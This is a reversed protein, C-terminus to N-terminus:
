QKVFLKRIRQGEMTKVELLYIGAALHKVDATAFSQGNLFQTSITQGQYNLLNVEMMQNTNIGIFQIMLASGVPNPFLMITEQNNEELQGVLTFVSSSSQCGNLNSIVVQYNGNSVPTYQQSNAGAIPQGNFYWQYADAVTSVLDNGNLSIVPTAPNPNVQILVSDYASCNNQTVQLTYLTSVAPWFVPNAILPNSIGNVPSWQYQTGGSATLQISDGECISVDAGANAVPSPNVTILGSMQITDSGAANSVILTVDYNGGNPYIVPPPQQLSSSSPIAGPFNWLWNVPANSSQDTFVISEGECINTTSYTFQAQPLVPPAALYVIYDEAEGSTVNFCAGSGATVTSNTSRVRFRTYGPTGSAPLTFNVATNVQSVAAQNLFLNETGQYQGNRNFDIWMSLQQNGQTTINATYSQGFYLTDTPGPVTPWFRVGWYVSNSSCGTNQNDFATGQIAFDDIYSGNDCDSDYMVSQCYFNPTVMVLCEYTITDSGAANSAILTAGYCGPTSYVVNPNQLTSTAPTGGPFTWQWSTPYNQSLDTYDVDFNSNIVNYVDNSFHAIPPLLDPQTGLILDVTQGSSFPTCADGAGNPMGAMRTRVRMYIQGNAIGAPIPLYITDGVEPTTSTAISYYESAEYDLNNNWDIWVSVSSNITTTIVLPYTEGGSLMGSDWPYEPNVKKYATNLPEIFINPFYDLSTNVIQIRKIRDYPNSPPNLWAYCFPTQKPITTYDVAFGQQNGPVGGSTFNITISGSLATETSLLGNLTNGTLYIQDTGYTGDLISFGDDGANSIESQTLNLIISDADHPQILWFCSLFDQYLSSGSGDDFTDTAQTNVYMFGTCADSPPSIVNVEFDKTEGEDYSQGPIPYQGYTCIVRLRMPGNSVTDPIKVLQYHEEYPNNFGGSIAKLVNEGEDSFDGDRNFDMYAAYYTSDVQSMTLVMGFVVGAITQTTNNPGSYFEYYPPIGPTNNEISLYDFEIIRHENSTGSIYTENQYVQAISVMASLFFFLISFYIARM